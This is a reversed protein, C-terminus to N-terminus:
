LMEHVTLFVFTVNISMFENAVNNRGDCLRQQM